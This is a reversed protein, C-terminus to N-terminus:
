PVIDAILLLILRKIDEIDTKVRAEAIQRVKGAPAVVTKTALPAVIDCIDWVNGTTELVVADGARLHKAARARFRQMPVKRPQLVWEQDRNQGGVMIYHKHLDLAIYREIPISVPQSNM